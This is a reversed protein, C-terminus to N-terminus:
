RRSAQEEMYVSVVARKAEPGLWCWPAGVQLRAIMKLQFASIEVMLMFEAVSGSTALGVLSICQAVKAVPQIRLAAILLVVAPVVQHVLFWTSTVPQAQRTVQDWPFEALQQSKVEVALFQWHAVTMTSLTGQALKVLV